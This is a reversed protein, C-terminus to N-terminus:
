VPLEKGCARGVLQEEDSPSDLLKPVRIMPYYKESTGRQVEGLVEGGFRAYYRRHIPSTVDGCCLLRQDDCNKLLARFIPSASRNSLPDRVLFTIYLHREPPHLRVFEKFVEVVDEQYPSSSTERLTAWLEDYDCTEEMPYWFVVVGRGDQYTLGSGHKFCDGGYAYFFREFYQEYRENERYLWRILPDSVFARKAMELLPGRDSENILRFQNETVKTRGQNAIRSVM